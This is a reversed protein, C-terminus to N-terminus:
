NIFYPTATTLLDVDSPWEKYESTWRIGLDVVNYYHMSGMNPHITKRDYYYEAYDHYSSTQYGANNFLNFISEFYTKKKYTNATCTNNITFLSTMVTMENNGTSCNNRPSYNNNFHIGESYLKYINPYEEENIAIDNTSEM